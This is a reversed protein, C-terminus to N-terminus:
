SSRHAVALEQSDVTQEKFIKYLRNNVARLALVALKLLLIIIYDLKKGILFLVKVVGYVPSHHYESAINVLEGGGALLHEVSLLAEGKRVGVAERYIEGSLYELFLAKTAILLAILLSELNLLLSGARCSAARLIHSRVLCDEVLYAALVRCLKQAVISKLALVLYIVNSGVILKDVGCSCAVRYVNDRLGRREVSLAASLYSIYSSDGGLRALALNNVSLLCDASLNGVLDLNHLTRNLDSLVCYELYVGLVPESYHSVVGARVKQLGSEPLDKAVMNMLRSLKHVRVPQSKVERVEGGHGLLLYVLHLM